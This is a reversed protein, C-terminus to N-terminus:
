EGISAISSGRRLGEVKEDSAKDTKDSQCAIGEGQRNPMGPDVGIPRKEQSALRLDNRYMM